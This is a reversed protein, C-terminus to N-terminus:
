RKRLTFALKGILCPTQLLAAAVIGIGVPAAIHYKNHLLCIMYVAFWAIALGVAIKRFLKKEAESLRRAESDVPSCCCICLVSATVVYTLYARADSGLIERLILMVVTLFATSVTVCKWASDLHYGGGFKRLLVLPIIMLISEVFLSLMLGLLLAIAFPILEFIFNFAAFAYLEEDEESIVRERVLWKALHASPRRRM